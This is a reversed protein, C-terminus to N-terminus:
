SESPQHVAAVGFEHEATAPITQMLSRAGKPSRARAQFDSEVKAVALAISPSVTTAWAEEFVVEKIDARRGAQVAGSAAAALAVAACLNALIWALTM